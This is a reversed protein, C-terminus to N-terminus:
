LAANPEFIAHVRGALCLEAISDGGRLGGLVIRIKVEASFHRRTARHINTVVPEAPERALGSKQRM